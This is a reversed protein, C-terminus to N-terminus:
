SVSASLTSDQSCSLGLYSSQECASLASTAYLERLALIVSDDPKRMSRKQVKYYEVIPKIKVKSATEAETCALLGRHLNDTKYPM